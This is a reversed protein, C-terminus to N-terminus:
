PIDGYFQLLIHSLIGDLPFRSTSLGFCVTFVTMLSVKNDIDIKNRRKRGTARFRCFALKLNHGVTPCEFKINLSSAKNVLQKEM